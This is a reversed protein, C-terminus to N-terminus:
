EVPLRISLVLETDAAAYDEAERVPEPFSLLLVALVIASAPAQFTGAEAKQQCPNDQHGDQPLRLLRNGRVQRQENDEFARKLLSSKNVAICKGQRIHRFIKMSFM